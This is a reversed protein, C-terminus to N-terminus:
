CPGASETRKFGLLFWDGLLISRNGEGGQETACGYFFDCSSIVQKAGAKNDLKPTMEKIKSKLPRTKDFHAFLPPQLCLRVGM